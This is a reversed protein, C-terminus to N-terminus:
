AVGAVYTRADIPRASDNRVILVLANGARLWGLRAVEECFRRRTANPLDGSAAFHAAPAEVLVAPPANRMLVQLQATVGEPLPTGEPTVVVLRRLWLSCQLHVSGYVSVGPAVTGGPIM